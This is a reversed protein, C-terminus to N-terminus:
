CFMNSFTTPTFILWAFILRSFKKGMHVGLKLTATTKASAVGEIRIWFKAKEKYFSLVLLIVVLQHILFLSLQRNCTCFTMCYPYTKSILSHTHHDVRIMVERALLHFFFFFFWVFFFYISVKLKVHFMYQPLSAGTCGRM